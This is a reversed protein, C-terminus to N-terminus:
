FRPRPWPFPRPVPLPRPRPPWPKPLPFRPPRPWDDPFQTGGSAQDLESDSITEDTNSM